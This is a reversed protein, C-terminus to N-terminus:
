FSLTPFFINDINLVKNRNIEVHEHDSRSKMPFNNKGIVSLCNM